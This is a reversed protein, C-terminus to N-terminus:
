GRPDAVWGVFVPIAHDVDHLCWAFPRDFGVVRPEQTVVAAVARMVVATAAAAETGTEDVKIWGEHVVADILLREAETMGSFDAGDSFATPMGLDSLAEGLELRTRVEWRPVRLDVKGSVPVAVLERWAGAALRALLAEEGGEDPLALTLALRRGAYPVRVVVAGDVDAAGAAADFSRMTPVDVDGGPTRFRLDSTLGDEFQKAWSAAFHIANVLVLRTARTLAGAPVLEPIREATRDAVWANIRQRAEDPVAAFEAMHPEAGFVEDLADLYAERWPVGVQAFLANAPSLKIEGQSGDPLTVPGALAALHGAVEGLGAIAREPALGGLVAGIEEATRGRAGALALGVASAVSTPSLVLNASADRGQLLGAALAQVSTAGDAIATTDTSTTM